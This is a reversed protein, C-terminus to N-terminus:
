PQNAKIDGEASAIRLTCPRMWVHKWHADLREPDPQFDGHHRRGTREPPPDRLITHM